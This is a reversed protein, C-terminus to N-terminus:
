ENPLEESTRRIRAARRAVDHRLESFAQAIQAASTERPPTKSDIETCPRPMSFRTLPQEEMAQPPRWSVRRLEVPQSPPRADRAFAFWAFPATGTAIRRGGWGERHLMPLREIGPWVRVLHSDILDSRAAGELAVLRLLVVVSDVLTLGHRIFQNALKFPPNTVICRCGPPAKREMLFDIPAAIGSDAGDWAVLDTAVVTHSASELVRKIAGRGAAPEWIVEPLREARLLAEIACAPTEYLDHGRDILRHRATGQRVAVMVAGLRWQTPACAAM